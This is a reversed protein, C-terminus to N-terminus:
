KYLEYANDKDKVGTVIDFDAGATAKVDLVDELSSQHHREAFLPEFVSQFSSPHIQVGALGAAGQHCHWVVSLM